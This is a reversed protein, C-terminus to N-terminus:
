SISSASSAANGCASRCPACRAAGASRGSKRTSPLGILTLPLRGLLHRRRREAGVVVRAPQRASVAHLEGAQLDDVQGPEQGSGIERQREGVVAGLHDLDLRGFAIGPACMAGISSRVLTNKRLRFRPLFLTTSSRFSRPRDRPAAAARRCRRRAPPITGARRRRRPEADAVVGDARAIWADDIARDGREALVAGVAVRGACSRASSASVPTSLRVSPSSPRGAIGPM